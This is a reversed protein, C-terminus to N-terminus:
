TGPPKVIKLRVEAQDYHWCSSGTIGIRRLLSEVTEGEDVIFVTRYKEINGDSKELVIKEAMIMFIGWM